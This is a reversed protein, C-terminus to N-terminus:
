ETSDQPAASSRSLYSKPPKPPQNDDQDRKPKGRDGFVQDENLAPRYHRDRDRFHQNENYNDTKIHNPQQQQQQQQQQRSNQEKQEIKKIFELQKQHWKDLEAQLEKAFEKLRQSLDDKSISPNNRLIWQEREYLRKGNEKKRQHIKDDLGIQMTRASQQTKSGMHPRGATNQTSQGQILTKIPNGSGTPADMRSRSTYVPKSMDHSAFSRQIYGSSGTGRVSRSM